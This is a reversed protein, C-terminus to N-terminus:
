GAARARGATRPVGQAPASLSTRLAEHYDPAHLLFADHGADSNLIRLHSPAGIRSATERLLWPPVLTDEEWGILWAPVGLEEPRLDCLDVSASLTLYTEAEFRDAFERGQKELYRGVAYVPAGDEWEWDHPFRADLGEASKYTTFALARALAVGESGRGHRLAFEVIWRQVAHIGIAQPHGRHAAGILVVGDVRAPHRIGMALAVMGGYSAGLMRHAREVGLHRLAVAVADAQDGPTLHIRGPSPGKSADASGTSEFTGPSGLFDIALLRWRNTDIALGPGALKRWWGPAPDVVNACIHRDASIGGMAVLLPAGDSGALEYRVRFRADTGTMLEPRWEAPMAVAGRRAEPLVANM